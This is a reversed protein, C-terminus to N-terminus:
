DKNVATDWVIDLSLQYQDSLVSNENYFEDKINENYGFLIDRNIGKGSDYDNCKQVSQCTRKCKETREHNEERNHKM